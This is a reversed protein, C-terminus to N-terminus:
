LRLVGPSVGRERVLESERLDDLWSRAERAWPEDVARRRQVIGRDVLAVMARAASRWDGVAIARGYHRVARTREGGELAMWAAWRHHRARDVPIGHRRAVVEIDALIQETRRSMMRAHTRLAVLPRPVSAPRGATRALRLWMDWDESTRLGPDFSGVRALADAHVVVNSAGAPVANHRILERLMEDPTLPPGGSLVRLGSDVTVHGAYVWSAGTERLASLQASLKGPAWLDDDDCFALWQGAAAAVGCNRAGSEGRPESNRILRVRSDRLAHVVDATEPGDGDDVVVVSIDVGRQGLVSRLTLALLDARDRTPIVVTVASRNVM